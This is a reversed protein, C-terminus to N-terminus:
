LFLFHHFNLLATTPRQDNASLVLQSFHHKVSAFRFRIRTKRRRPNDATTPPLLAQGVVLSSRGFVLEVFLSSAMVRASKGPNRTMPISARVVFALSAVASPTM